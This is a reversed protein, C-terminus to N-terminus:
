KKPFARGYMAAIQDDYPSSLGCVLLQDDANGAVVYREGEEFEVGLLLQNMVESPATVTITDADEGVYTNNVELTVQDGDISTVTADAAFTALEQILATTPQMCRGNGTAPAALAVDNGAAPTGSGPDDSTQSTSDGPRDAVNNDDGGRLTFFAVGALLAVVAAAAVMTLSSRGSSTSNQTNMTDELLRAVVAPDAPPLHAAPDAAGMRSRLQDLEPDEPFENM